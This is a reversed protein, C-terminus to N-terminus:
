GHGAPTPGPELEILRGSPWEVAVYAPMGLRKWLRRPEITGLSGLFLSMVTGHTVFATCEESHSALEEELTTSFRRCAEDASERGLVREAPREFVEAVRREFEEQTGFFPVGTRDQERLGDAIHVDLGLHRGLIDATQRAKPEPSSVLRGPGFRAVSTAIAGAGDSGRRTLSWEEAPRDPDVRSHAHRILILIRGPAEPPEPDRNM